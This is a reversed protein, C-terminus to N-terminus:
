TRPGTRTTTSRGTGHLSAACRHELDGPVPRFAKCAKESFVLSIELARGGSSLTMAEWAAQPVPLNQFPAHNAGFDGTYQYHEGHVSLRVGDFAHTGPNWRCSPRWCDKRSSKGTGDYPYLLSVAPDLTPAMGLATEVVPSPPQGAGDGGVGRFGGPGPPGGSSSPGPDGNDNAELNVTVTTTAALQGYRATVHGVGGALDSATFLGNDDIEGLEGRDLSWMADLPGAGQTAQFQITPHTSASGATVVPSAPHITLPGNSGTGGDVPGFVM